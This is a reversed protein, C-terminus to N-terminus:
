LFILHELVVHLLLPLRPPVSYVSHSAVIFQIAQVLVSIAKLPLSIFLRPTLQVRPGAVALQRGANGKTSPHQDLALLLEESITPLVLTLPPHQCSLPPAQLSPLQRQPLDGQPDPRLIPYPARMAM